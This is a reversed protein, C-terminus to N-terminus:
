KAELEVMPEPYWNCHKVVENQKESSLNIFDLINEGPFMNECYAPWIGNPVIGIKDEELVRALIQQGKNLVVPVGATRLALYFRITEFCRTWASGAIGLYYGREDHYVRLSVHTSNGGRCVEWPHGGGRNKDFFWAEFAETSDPDIKRLGEDRGDAHKYYWEKPSLDGGSYNNARYGLACFGYFDNATMKELRGILSRDEPDKEEIYKQFLALEEQSFDEFFDNRWEPFIDWLDKRRITGTRHIAPLENEIMQNYTGAQLMAVCDQVAHLLWQAFPSIDHPYGREKRKDVEIVYHHGMFIARFNIDPDDIATFAFWSVPEPYLEKWLEEYEEYSDVEEYEKMEEYDGYAEIPGRDAKLWLHWGKRGHSIEPKVKALVAFLEDILEYTKDDYSFTNGWQYYDNHKLMDVYGQVQPAYECDKIRMENMELELRMKYFVANSSVYHGMHVDPMSERLLSDLEEPTQPCPPLQHEEEWAVCFEPDTLREALTVRYDKGM